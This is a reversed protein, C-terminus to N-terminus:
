YCYKQFFRRQWYCYYIRRGKVKFMNQDFPEEAYIICQSYCRITGTFEFKKTRICITPADFYGNGRLTDTTLNIRRLAYYDGEQILLHTSQEISGSLITGYNTNFFAHSNYICFLSFILVKKLSLM